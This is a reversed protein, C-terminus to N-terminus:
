KRQTAMCISCDLITRFVIHLWWFAWPIIDVIAMSGRQHYRTFTLHVSLIGDSCTESSDNYIKPFKIHDEFRYVAVPLSVIGQGADEFAKRFSDPSYFSNIGSSIIEAPDGYMYYLRINNQVCYSAALYGM